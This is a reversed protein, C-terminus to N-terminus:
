IMGVKERCPKVHRSLNSKAIQRKCNPCEATPQKMGKKAASIKAGHNKPKGIQALRRKENSAESPRYGSSVRAKVALVQAGKPPAFSAKCHNLFLGLKEYHEMWFIERKRKDIVTATKPLTELSELRFGESGHENWLEQMRRAKHRNGNLLCKHERMRKGLKGSTCGIYAEGTHVCYLKYITVM